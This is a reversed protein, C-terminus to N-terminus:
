ALIHQGRVGPLDYDEYIEELSSEIDRCMPEDTVEKTIIVGPHVM